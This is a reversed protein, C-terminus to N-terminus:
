LTGLGARVAAKDGTGAVQPDSRRRAPRAPAPRPRGDSLRRDVRSRAITMALTTASAPASPGSVNGAGDFAAVTYSYSTSAALGTDAYATNTSSGVNAGNRYVQYGVVGVNDTSAGWALNIQSASTATVTLNAPV